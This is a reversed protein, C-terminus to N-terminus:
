QWNPSVSLYSNEVCGTMTISRCRFIWEYVINDNMTEKSKRLGIKVNNYAEWFLQLICHSLDDTYIASNTITQLNDHQISTQSSPKASNHQNNHRNYEAKSSWWSCLRWTKRWSRAWSSSWFTGLHLLTDSTNRM